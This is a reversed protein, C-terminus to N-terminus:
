ESKRRIREDIEQKYKEIVTPYEEPTMVKALKFNSEVMFMVKKSDEDEYGRELIEMETETPIFFVKKINIYGMPYPVVYYGPVNKDEKPITAYGIVCLAIHNVEIVSGIPLLAM